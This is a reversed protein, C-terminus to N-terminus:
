VVEQESGVPQGRVIGSTQRSMMDMTRQLIDFPGLGLDSVAKVYRAETDKTWPTREGSNYSGEVAREVKDALLEAIYIFHEKSITRPKTAEVLTMFHEYAIEIEGAFKNM